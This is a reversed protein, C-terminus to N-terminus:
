SGFVLDSRVWGADDGSKYFGLHLWDGTKGLIKYIEGEEAEGTVQHDLGPGNRLNAKDVLIVATDVDSVLPKYVWGTESQWDKVYVWDGQQKEIEIPYGLPAKFTVKSQLSPKSHINVDDKGISDASAGAVLCIVGAATAAGLLGKKAASGM